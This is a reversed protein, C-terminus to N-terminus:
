HRDTPLWPSIRVQGRTEIRRGDSEVVTVPTNLAAYDRDRKALRARREERETIEARLQERLEDRLRDRESEHSKRKKQKAGM